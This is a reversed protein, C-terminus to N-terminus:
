ASLTFEQHGISQGQRDYNMEHATIAQASYLLCTTTRTGYDDGRIFVSSIFRDFEKGSGSESLLDDEAKTQDHMIENLENIEVPLKREVIETLKRVGTSMKPWEHDIYGNSISHYGDPLTKMSNDQSCFIRTTSRNGFILNFPNFRTYNHKLYDTFDDGASDSSDNTLFRSVLHGRSQRDPTAPEGTRFNTVACFSGKHNVGLWSGGKDLDRGALIEPHDPWYHMAQSPRDHYEDRNAAIILPYDPHRNIALFLICMLPSNHWLSLRIERDTDFDLPQITGVITYLYLHCVLAYLPERAM